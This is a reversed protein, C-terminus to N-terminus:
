LLQSQEIQSQVEPISGLRAERSTTSAKTLMPLVAKLQEMQERLKDKDIEQYNQYFEHESIEELLKAQGNILTKWRGVHVGGGRKITKVVGEKGHEDMDAIFQGMHVDGNTM